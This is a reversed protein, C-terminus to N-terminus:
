LGEPPSLDYFHDVLQIAFLGFQMEARMLPDTWFIRYHDREVAVIRGTSTSATKIRSVIKEGPKFKNEM